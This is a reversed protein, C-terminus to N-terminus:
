LEKDLLLTLNRLIHIHIYIHIYINKKQGLQVAHSIKTGWGPVMGTGGASAAQLRLWQVVLSAGM